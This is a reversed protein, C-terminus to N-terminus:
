PKVEPLPMSQLTNGIAALDAGVKDQTGTSPTQSQGAQQVGQMLQILASFGSKAGSLDGSQLASALDKLDQRAQTVISQAGGAQHANISSSVNSISM